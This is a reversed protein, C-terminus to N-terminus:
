WRLMSPEATKGGRDISVSGERVRKVSDVDVPYGKQTYAYLDGPINPPAYFFPPGPVRTIYADMMIRKDGVKFYWNAISMWTLEVSSPAALASTAPLTALALVAVAIRKRFM